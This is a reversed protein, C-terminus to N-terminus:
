KEDFVIELVDLEECICDCKLMSSISPATRGNDGSIFEKVYLGHSALLKVEFMKNPLVKFELIKATKEREKLARRKEVREPTKQIVVMENEPLSNFASSPIISPSSCKAFYIKKFETNKLEIVRDKRCFKLGSISIKGTSSSNIKEKLKNLDLTRKMPEILEIVFPRGVGLMRVDADEGSSFILM